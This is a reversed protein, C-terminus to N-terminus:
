INTVLSHIQINKKRWVTLKRIFMIQYRTIKQKAGFDCHVQVKNGAGQVQDGDGHVWTVAVDVPHRTTSRNTNDSSNLLHVFINSLCCHTSRLQLSVPFWTWVELKPTLPLLTLFASQFVDKRMLTFPTSPYTFPPSLITFPPSSFLLPPVRVLFTKM